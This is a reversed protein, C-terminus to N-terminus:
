VQRMTIFGDTMSELTDTDPSPNPSPAWDDYSFYLDFSGEEDVFSVVHRRRVKRAHLFGEGCHGARTARLTLYANSYVDVMRSAEREWDANEDQVICLCDVWLYGIGLCRTLFIADRLTQPLEVYRIGRDEKHKELDRSTTTYPLAEGWCYSLAIYQGKSDLSNEVVKLTTETLLARPDGVVGV